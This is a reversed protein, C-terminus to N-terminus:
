CGHEKVHQLLAGFAQQKEENKRDLDGDMDLAGKDDGAKLLEIQRFTLRVYDDLARVLEEQLAKRLPCTLTKDNPIESPQEPEM